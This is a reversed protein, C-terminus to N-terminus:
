PDSEVYRGLSPDYDRFYNYFTRASASEDYRSATQRSADAPQASPVFAREKENFLFIRSVCKQRRGRALVLLMPAITTRAAASRGRAATPRVCLVTDWRTLPARLALAASGQRPVLLSVSTRATCAPKSPKCQM